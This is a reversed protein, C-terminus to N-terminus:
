VGGSFRLTKATHRAIVLEENAAIVFVPVASEPRSICSGGRANADDDLALGLWASAAVVRKRIVPSNEGIGGTFVLGDLGGLVAALAGIEQTVRYVFYDVALRAQPEASALLVRMDSSTGSIGLLGSHTYLLREVETASLGRQQLLYLIVGPDLHGPRTGMCLGDLTSFGLTTEVSRGDRVACLSAGNGLHAVLIRGSAIAPAIRPLADVISEYSLGHFGYRRLEAGCVEVPLPILESVPERHRHFATDFCAVQPVTPFREQIAEIGALNDLQHLPALPVLARLGALTAVDIRMPTSFRSGGHVVRHGVAAPALDRAEAALWSFLAEIADRPTPIAAADLTRDVLISGDGDQARLRCNGGIGEIRGRLTCALTPMRFVSLKVSSSGANLVLIARDQM